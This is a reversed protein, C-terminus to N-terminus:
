CRLLDAAKEGIMISSLNTNARVINPMVSADCVFLSDVGHVRCFEDVVATEDEEPGMKATGVPHYASDVSTRIYQRVMEDDDIMSERLVIFGQGIGSIGDHNALKWATRVGEVLVDIDRDADNFFNLDIQPPALPDSSSLTLRGVSDPRQAVVMVGYITQAGAQLQLDPFHALDFHNVMYYQLDNEFPSGSSTTRLIEQLFPVNTDCGGPGPVLFAGSRQHDQLNGGVGPLDRRVDIGSRRLEAADGIGSRMLIMPTAVSGAALIVRGGRVEEFLGEGACVSVGCARDGEFLVKDVQARSVITLNPRTRAETLYALATTERGTADRRSSPIPGVGTADPDNHDAVLPYGADLCAARFAAQVPTMEDDPFRRIYLPGEQGHLEGDFDLDSELKRFYPLVQDWSWLPNGAKAWEDYDGPMGRLAITAGVASSGGVLKGRPFPTRRGSYLEANFHWDHDELSMAHGLRIDDPMHQRELYEPGAELLLVERSPDESLRAALAAGASGAGVIVDDFTSKM